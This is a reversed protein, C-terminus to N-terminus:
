LLDGVRLLDGVGLRDRIGVCDGVGLLDEVESSRGGEGFLLRVVLDVAFAFSQDFCSPKSYLSQFSCIFLHVIIVIISPSM